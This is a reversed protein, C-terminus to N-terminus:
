YDRLDALPVPQKMLIYFNQAPTYGMRASLNMHAWGKQMDHRNFYARAIEFQCGGNACTGASRNLAEDSFADYNPSSCAVLGLMFFITIFLRLKM